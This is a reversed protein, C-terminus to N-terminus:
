SQISCFFQSNALLDLSNRTNHENYSTVNHRRLRRKRTCSDRCFHQLNNSVRREYKQTLSQAQREDTLWGSPMYTTRLMQWFFHKPRDMATTETACFVRNTAFVLDTDSKSKTTKLNKNGRLCKTAFYKRHLYAWSECRLNHKIVTVSMGTRGVLLTMVSFSVWLVFELWTFDGVPTSRERVESPLSVVDWHHLFGSRLLM